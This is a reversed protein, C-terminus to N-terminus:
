LCSVYDLGAVVPSDILRDAGAVQQAAGEMFFAKARSSLMGVSQSRLQMETTSRGALRM